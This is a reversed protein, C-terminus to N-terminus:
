THARAHTRHTTHTTHTDQTHWPPPTSHTCTHYKHHTAHTTHTGRIPSMHTCTHPTHSLPLYTTHNYTHPTNQTHVHPTHTTHKTHPMNQEHPTLTHNATRTHQTTSQAQKTRTHTNHTHQTTSATLTTRLVHTTHPTRMDHPLTTHTKRPDSRGSICIRTKYSGHHPLNLGSSRNPSTSLPTFGIGCDVWVELWFRGRCQRQERTCAGAPWLPRPFGSTDQAQRLVHGCASHSLVSVYGRVTRSALLRLDPSRPAMTHRLARPHAQALGPEPKQRSRAAKPLGQGEEAQVQMGGGGRHDSTGRRHTRTEKRRNLPRWGDSEPGNWHGRGLRIMQLSETELYPQIM